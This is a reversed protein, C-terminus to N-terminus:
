KAMVEDLISHLIASHVIEVTGYQSAPVYFNVQGKKRLFNGEGFGSLTVVNMHKVRALETAHLINESMGSSSIAFLVDGLQGHRDILHDYVNEFGLDNGICTFWAADSPGFTPFGANKSFDIAFHSAITASGGNGVFFLRSKPLEPAPQLFQKVSQWGHVEVEIHRMGHDIAVFSQRPLPPPVSWQMPQPLAVDGKLWKIPFSM